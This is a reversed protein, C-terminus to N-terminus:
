MVASRVTRLVLMQTDASPTDPSEGKLVCFTFGDGSVTKWSSVDTAPVDASGSNAVVQASEAPNAPQANPATHKASCGGTTAVVALATARAVLRKM